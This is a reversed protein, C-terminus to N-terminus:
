AVTGYIGFMPILVAMLIFGVVVALLIIMVPEIFTKIMAVSSKEEKSYFEAVRELMEALEGTSEGTVIMFYAVDPIAWHDKFTESMKNGKILNDITRLELEKYIENSTIKALIDISDTLLVNNKQLSAFTRAFMSMEKSILLKGVVPMKMLFKQIFTKFAKIKQYALIFLLIFGFLGVILFAWNNQLFASLNLTFQTIAPIDSGMSDYVSVFKPVIFVLMFVTIGGAFVMVCSPYAMASVVARKTDEMEQYYESMEDLTEEISGTMEASKIMNVLLAPFANGQKQLADSFPQGMTLEYVVCDYIKSYNKNKTQKTLVKVADTLPIGAKIYTSLQALWFVLEKTKIKTQFSGSSGHVFNTMKDTEISYVIKKEDTLYSYVDLKSFAAFQGKEVVGEENRCVYNWIQKTPFKVADKEPDLVLPVLKAEEEQKKKQVSPRNDNWAKLKARTEAIFGKKQPTIVNPNVPKDEMIERTVEAGKKAGKVVGKTGDVFIAKLGAGINGFFDKM